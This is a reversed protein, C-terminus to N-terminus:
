AFSGVCRCNASGVQLAVHDVEEGRADLLAKFTNRNFKDAVGAIFLSLKKDEVVGEDSQQAKCNQFGLVHGQRPKTNEFGEGCELVLLCMSPVLVVYVYEEKWINDQEVVSM